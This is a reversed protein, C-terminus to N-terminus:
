SIEFEGDTAADSVEQAATEARLARIAKVRAKFDRLTQMEVHELRTLPNPTPEGGEGTVLDVPNSLEAQYGFSEALDELISQAYETPVTINITFTTTPVSM